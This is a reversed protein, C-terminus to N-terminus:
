LKSRICADIARFSDFRRGPDVRRAIRATLDLIVIHVAPSGTSKDIRPLAARMRSQGSSM